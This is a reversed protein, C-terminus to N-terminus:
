YCGEKQWGEHAKRLKSNPVTAKKKRKKKSKNKSRDHLEKFDNLMRILNDMTVPCNTSIFGSWFDVIFTYYKEVDNTTVTNQRQDANEILIEANRRELEALSSNDFKPNYPEKRKM